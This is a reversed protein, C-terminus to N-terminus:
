HKMVLIRARRCKATQGSQNCGFEIRISHEGANLNMLGMSTYTRYSDAIQPIFSDYGREVEDVLVRTAVGRNTATGTFEATVFVIFEGSSEINGSISLKTNWGTASVSSESEDNNFLIVTM